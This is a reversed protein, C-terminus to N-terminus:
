LYRMILKYIDFLEFFGALFSKVSISYISFKMTMTKKM